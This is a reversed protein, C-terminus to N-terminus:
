LEHIRVNPSVSSAINCLHRHHTFYIVQGHMSMEELVKLTEGTRENDFSVLIDDAIFPVPPNKKLTEYYGAVRLALYLQYRTGKSLQEAYKTSGDASNAILVEKNKDQATGLSHYKNISIAAFKDSALNMMESKYKDRFIKTAHELIILGFKLRLHDKVEEQLQVELNAYQEKMEAVSGDDTVKELEREADRKIRVKNEIDLDYEEIISVLESKTTVLENQDLEDVERLAEESSTAHLIQRIQDLITAKKEKLSQYESAQELILKLEDINEIGYPKGLDSVLQQTQEVQESQVDRNDNLRELESEIRKSNEYTKEAQRTREWIRDWVSMINQDNVELDFEKSLSAVSNKFRNQDDKMSKIRHKLDKLLTFKPVFEDILLIIERMEEPDPIRNNCFPSDECALGWEKKWEDLKRQADKLELKRKTEALQARFQEDSLSSLKHFESVTQEAINVVEWINVKDDCKVGLKLLTDAFKSRYSDLKAKIGKERGKLRDRESMDDIIQDYRELWSIFEDISPSDTECGVMSVWLSRYEYSLDAIKKNIAFLQSKRNQLDNNLKVLQKQNESIRESRVQIDSARKVVEDYIRMAKEFAEATEIDLKQKHTLWLDERQSRAKALEKLSVNEGDNQDSISSQIDNITTKLEALQQSINERDQEAKNKAKDNDRIARIKPPSIKKLEEENGQWPFLEGLQSAIENELSRISDTVIKLESRIENDRFEKIYAQLFKNEQPQYEKGEVKDKLESLKAKQDEYEKRAAKHTAVIGSHDEMLKRLRSIKSAEFNLQDEDALSLGLRSALYDLEATLRNLEQERRPIDKIAGRYSALLLNVEDARVKAVIAIPDESLEIKDHEYKNIQKDIQTITTRIKTLSESYKDLKERWNDPPKPLKELSELKTTHTRYDALFPMCTLQRDIKALHSESQGKKTRAIKLSKDAEELENKLRKYHTADIDNESWQQKLAIMEKKIVNLTNKHGRPKYFEESKDKLEELTQNIGIMGTSASFLMRGLEGKSELIENGGKELTEENFSFLLEYDNRSFGGLMERLIAEDIVEGQQSLLSHSMRRIRKFEVTNVGHDLKAGVEMAKSHLFGYPSGRTIGFLFDNWAALATSKGAENLGYVIHFDPERDRKEGFYLDRDTFMGYKTLHLTNLRM